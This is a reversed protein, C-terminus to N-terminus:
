ETAVEAGIEADVETDVKAGFDTAAIEAGVEARDVPHEAATAEKGAVWGMNAYDFVPSLESIRLFQSPVM